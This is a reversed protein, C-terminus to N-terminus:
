SRSKAVFALKASGNRPAGCSPRTNYTAPRTNGLSWIARERDAARAYDSEDAKM